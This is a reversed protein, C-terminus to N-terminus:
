EDPLSTGLWEAVGSLDRFVRLSNPNLDSFMQYMRIMGFVHDSPAIVALKSPAGQEKAFRADLDVLKRLGSATAEFREVARLDLLEPAGWEIRDDSYGEQWHALLEEDTVVGSGTALTLPREPLYVYSVPVIV